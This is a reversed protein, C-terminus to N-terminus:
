HGRQRPDHVLDSFYYDVPVKKINICLYNYLWNVICKLHGRQGPDHVLDSFYYDVPAKKINM